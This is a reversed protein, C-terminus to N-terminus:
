RLWISLGNGWHGDIADDHWQNGNSNGTCSCLADFYDSGNDNQRMHIACTGSPYGWYSLWMGDFDTTGGVM